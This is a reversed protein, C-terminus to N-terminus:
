GGMFCTRHADAVVHTGNAGIIGQTWGSPRYGRHDYSEALTFGSQEALGTVHWLRDVFTSNTIYAGDLHTRFERITHSSWLYAHVTSMTTNSHILSEEINSVYFDFVHPIPPQHDAYLYYYRVYDSSTGTSRIHSDDGIRYYKCKDRSDDSWRKHLCKGGRLISM